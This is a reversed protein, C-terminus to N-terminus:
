FARCPFGHYRGRVPLEVVQNGDDVYIILLGITVGALNQRKLGDNIAPLREAPESLADIAIVQIGQDGREVGCAVVEAGLWPDNDAIGFHAFAHGKQFGALLCVEDTHFIVFPIQCQAVKFFSFVLSCRLWCESRKSHVLWFAGSWRPSSRKSQRQLGLSSIRVTRGHGPRVQRDADPCLRCTRQSTWTYRG